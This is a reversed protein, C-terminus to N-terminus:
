MPEKYLDDRFESYQLHISFKRYELGGVQFDLAEIDLM